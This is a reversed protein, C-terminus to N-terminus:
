APAKLGLRAPVDSATVTSPFDSLTMLQCGLVQRLKEPDSIQTVTVGIKLGNSGHGEAEVEESGNVTSQLEMGDVVQEYSESKNDLLLNGSEDTSYGHPVSVESLAIHELVTDMSIDSPDLKVDAAHTFPPEAEKNAFARDKECNNWQKENLRLIDAFDLPEVSVFQLDEDNSAQMQQVVAAIMSDLVRGHILCSALLPRLEMTRLDTQAGFGKLPADWPLSELVDLAAHDPEAFNDFGSGSWQPGNKTTRNPKKIAAFEEAETAASVHGNCCGAKLLQLTSFTAPALANHRLTSTIGGSAFACESPVVSGGWWVVINDTEELPSTLYSSLEQLLDRMPVQPLPVDDDPDNFFTIDSADKLSGDTNLACADQSM